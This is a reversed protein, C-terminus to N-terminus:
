GDVNKRNCKILGLRRRNSCHRRYFEEGSVIECEFDRSLKELLVQVPIKTTYAHYEFYVEDFLRARRQQLANICLM